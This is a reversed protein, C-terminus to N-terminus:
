PLLEVRRTVITRDGNGIPQTFPRAKLLFQGEQPLGYTVDLAFVEVSKGAPLTFGIEIGKAPVAWFEYGFWGNM